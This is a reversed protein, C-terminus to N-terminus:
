FLYQMGIAWGTSQDKVLFKNLRYELVANLNGILRYRLQIESVTQPRFNGEQEAFNVDVFGGTSFRGELLYHPTWNWAFAVQRRGPDTGIPFAKTYLWLNWQKLFDFSPQYFAGFRGASDATGEGDNYEAVAGFGNVLERQLDVELFFESKDVRSANPADPSDIDIFGWLSFGAPLRSAGTVNFTQYGRTDFWYETLLWAKTDEVYFYRDAQNLGEQLRDIWGNSVHEAADWVVQGPLLFPAVAEEPLTPQTTRTDAPHTRKLSALETELETVRSKLRTNEEVLTQDDASLITPILLFIFYAILGISFLGHSRSLAM